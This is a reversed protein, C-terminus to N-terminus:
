GRGGGMIINEESNLDERKLTILLNNLFEVLDKDKNPAYVNILVYTTDKIDVKLIIYRGKPDLITQQIRCDLNHKMMIAVGRSNSSGHSTILKAGWENEWQIM